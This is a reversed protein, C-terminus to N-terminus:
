SMMDFRESQYALFEQIIALFDIYHGTFKSFTERITPVLAFSVTMCHSSDKTMSFLAPVTALRHNEHACPPTYAYYTLNVAAETATAM